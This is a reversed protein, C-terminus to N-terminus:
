NKAPQLIWKEADQGIGCAPLLGCCTPKYRHLVPSKQVEFCVLARKAPCCPRWQGPSVKWCKYWRSCMLCPETGFATGSDRYAVFHHANHFFQSRRRRQGERLGPLPLRSVKQPFAKKCVRSPSYSCPDSRLSPAPSGSRVASLRFVDTNRIGILSQVANWVADGIFLGRNTPSM